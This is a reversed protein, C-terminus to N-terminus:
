LLMLKTSWSLCCFPFKVDDIIDQQVSFHILNKERCKLILGFLNDRFQELLKDLNPKVTQPDPASSNQEDLSLSHQQVPVTM